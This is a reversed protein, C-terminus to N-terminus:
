QPLVQLTFTGTKRMIHLHLVTYEPLESEPAPDGQCACGPITSTYSVGLDMSLSQANEYHNLAMLAVNDLLAYSGHELASQLPAFLVDQALLETCLLDLFEPQGWLQLISTPLLPKM